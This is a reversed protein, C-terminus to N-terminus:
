GSYYSASDGYWIRLYFHFRQITTLLMALITQCLKLSYFSMSIETHQMQHYCTHADSSNLIFDEMQQIWIDCLIIISIGVKNASFEKRGWLYDTPIEHMAESNKIVKSVIIIKNAMDFDAEM